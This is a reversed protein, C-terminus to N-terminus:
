NFLNTRYNLDYEQAIEINFDNRIRCREETSLFDKINQENQLIIRHEKDYYEKRPLIMALFGFDDKIKNFTEELEEPTKVSYGKAEIKKLVEEDSKNEIDYECGMNGMYDRYIEVVDSANIKTSIGMKNLAKLNLRKELKTYLSEKKKM